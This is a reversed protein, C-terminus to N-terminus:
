RFSFNDMTPTTPTSLPKSKTASAFPSPQLLSGPTTAGETEVDGEQVSELPCGVSWHMDAESAGNLRHLPSELHDDWPTKVGLLELRTRVLSM